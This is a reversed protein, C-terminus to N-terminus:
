ALATKTALIATRTLSAPLHGLKLNIHAVECGAETLIQVMRRLPINHYQYRKAVYRGVLNENMELNILMGGPEILGVLQRLSAEVNDAYGIVAGICVLQLSRAALSMSQGDLTTLLNPQSINSLGVQVRHLDIGRSQANSLTAKLFNPELDTAILTALPFRQLLGLGLLGTGCGADLVKAPGELKLPLQQLFRDLSREYGLSKM